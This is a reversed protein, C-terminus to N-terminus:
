VTKSFHTVTTGWTRSLFSTISKLFLCFFKWKRKISENLFPTISKLFLCFFKWKRKISELLAWCFCIIHSINTTASQCCAAHALLRRPFFLFRLSSLLSKTLSLPKHQYYKPFLVFFFRLFFLSITLSQHCTSTTKKSFSLFMKSFLYLYKTLAKIFFL